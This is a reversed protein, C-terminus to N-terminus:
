KILSSAIFCLKGLIRYFVSGHVRHRMNYIKYLNYLKQSASMHAKYKEYFRTYGVLLNALCSASDEHENVYVVAEKAFVVNKGNLLLDVVLGRDEGTKLYPDMGGLEFYTTKCITQNQGGCGPNGLLLHPLNIKGEPDKLVKVQDAERYFLKGIVAEAKIPHSSLEMIVHQLYDKDWADDDDLFSIYDGRALSAGFNRAQAPGAYHIVNYAKVKNKLHSPLQLEAAGNNVVIIEFPTYSQALVSDIAAYLLESRNCTPIVVSVKVEHLIANDTDPM